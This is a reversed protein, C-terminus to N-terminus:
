TYKIKLENVHGILQKIYGARYLAARYVWVNGQNFIKHTTTFSTVSLGNIVYNHM